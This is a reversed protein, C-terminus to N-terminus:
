ISNRILRCFFIFLLERFFIIKSLKIFYRYFIPICTSQRIKMYFLLFVVEKLAALYKKSKYEHEKLKIKYRKNMTKERQQASIVAAELKKKMSAFDTLSTTELLNPNKELHENNVKKINKYNEFIENRVKEKEACDTELDRIISEEKECKLDQNLEELIEANGENSKKQQRILDELEQKSNLSYSLILKYYM